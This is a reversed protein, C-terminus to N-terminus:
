KLIHKVNLSKKSATVEAFAGSILPMMPPHHGIDANLIVPASLGSLIDTVAKTQSLGFSEDDYLYPRGFIFGSVNEFWGAERLAWLARLAAVSTLECAEIFWIIKDDRYRKIFEEVKDFRTGCLLFLLDLCGGLLRGSFQVKEAGKESSELIMSNLETCNYGCLADNSADFPIKEWKEYSHSVTNRGSLLNISDKLAPHWERQGFESVCPGYISATDCLVPLTFVLNTNDSYGMFWKPTAQSIASFDIYPLDECMTEGGGNSIIIDCRDNMFFDNIEEGCKEPTNSKGIGHALRSNPGEICEYGMERFKKESENFRSIYPETACGFSPAVFGIRGNNKLFEPYRM